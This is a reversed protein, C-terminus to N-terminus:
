ESAKRNSKRSNVSRKRKKLHGNSLSEACTKYGKSYQVLNTVVAYVTINGKPALIREIVANQGCKSEVIAKDRLKQFILDKDFRFSDSSVKFDVLVDIEISSCGCGESFSIKLVMEFAKNLATRRKLRFPQTNLIAAKYDGKDLFSVEVSKIFPLAAKRWHASAVLLTWNVYKKDNSLAQNLIIQFLDIGVFPPIKLSLLNMVGEIVKDVPGHIVLSAKKDKTTKQLNVIVVKGGGPLAKLPLNCAPTIQLSTGLCLVIDAERCHKEAPGMEKPPLADEWDLVTDKLRKRCKANSCRRLTEKMGITEVEFDRFYEAGCSPCTEMFSNGHLEALKERPIGSRLHLGDINQSVVFKLIGAKELEVLAMHTLSPVARHFPLSAEPLPKGDRQLTWIGKPGRFDPIGCSTSIGAGTFVVLHKSKKIVVALQEIKEQLVQAPEFYETMGVSGVDEIYSLKEAYGLSM